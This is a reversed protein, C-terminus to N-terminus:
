TQSSHSDGIHLHPPGDAFGNLFRQCIDTIVRVLVGPDGQVRYVCLPVRKDAENVAAIMWCRMVVNRYIAIFYGHFFESGVQAASRSSSGSSERVIWTIYWFARNVHGPM